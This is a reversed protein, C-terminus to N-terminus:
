FKLLKHQIKDIIEEYEKADYNLKGKGFVPAPWAQDNKFRVIIHVHLQEVINGLSAVNLKDPNFLDKMVKSIYNIEEMLLPRDEENLDIIEKLMNRKPVLIIWPFLSNNVLILKCLNLEVIIAGDNELRSDLIFNESM